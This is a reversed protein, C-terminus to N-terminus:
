TMNPSLQHSAVLTNNKLPPHLRPQDVRTTTATIQEHNHLVGFLLVVPRFLTCTILPSASEAVISTNRKLKNQTVFAEASKSDTLRHARNEFPFLSVAM